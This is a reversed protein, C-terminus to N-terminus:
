NNWRIVPLELGIVALNRSATLVNSNISRSGCGQPEKPTPRLRLYLIAGFLLPQMSRSEVPKFAFWQATRFILPANRLASVKNAGTLTTAPFTEPLSSSLAPHINERQLSLYTSPYRFLFTMCDKRDDTPELARAEKSFLLQLVSSPIGYGAM